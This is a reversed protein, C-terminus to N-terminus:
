VETEQLGHKINSFDKLDESVHSQPIYGLAYIGQTSSVVTEPIAQPTPRSATPLWLASALQGGQASPRM